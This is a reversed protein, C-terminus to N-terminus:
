IADADSMPTPAALDDVTLWGHATPGSPETMSWVIWCYDATGGGAVNGAEIYEGPPCSPRPTIEWIRTPPHERYLGRARGQGTLFRRDVFVAVKGFTVELARRIFAETGKGGFYPPNMVLNAYDFRAGLFDREGAWWPTDAPVRRVVDSGRAAYGGALLAKVINGGGCCPDHVDGVFRERALLQATCRGPEQYWDLEDRRWIHAGRERKDATVDTLASDALVPRDAPM